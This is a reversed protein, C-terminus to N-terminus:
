ISWCQLSFAQIKHMQLTISQTGAAPSYFRGLCCLWFSPKIPSAETCLCFAWPGLEFVLYCTIITLLHSSSNPPQPLRLRWWHCPCSNLLLFSPTIFILTLGTCAGELKYNIHSMHRWRWGKTGIKSSIILLTKQIGRRYSKKPGWRNSWWGCFVCVCM